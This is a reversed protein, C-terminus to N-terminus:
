KIRGQAIKSAIMYDKNQQSNQKQSTINVNPNINTAKNSSSPNVNVNTSNRTEISSFDKTLLEKVNTSTHGTNNAIEKLVDIAKELFEKEVSTSDQAIKRVNSDMMNLERKYQLGETNYPNTKKSVKEVMEGFGGGDPATAMISAINKMWSENPTGDDHVAYRHTPDGYIMSYLSNQGRDVYNKKIWNAGGIIGSALGTNFTLASSYPSSNFAGIGFYNNKDKAIKSTGWASELAAHAVIYRPDLGSQKSAELFVAAQNRFPSNAPARSNIWSNLQDQSISNFQTLNKSTYKDGGYTINNFSSSTSRSSEDTTTGMISDVYARFTSVVDSLYSTNETTDNSSNSSSAFSDASPLPGGKYNFAWGAASEKTVQNIDYSHSYSAGRPDNIKIKNAGDNGVAVVFHGGQTFPSENINNTQRKGSLIVPIGSQLYSQLAAKQTAPSFKAMNLSFRQAIDDFFSWSTGSSTSHGNNQAIQAMQQPGYQKGTLQTAVMAMSTPGCGRDKLFPHSSKGYGNSHDYITNGWRSDNQSYYAFNNIKSPEEGFGGFSTEGNGGTKNQM